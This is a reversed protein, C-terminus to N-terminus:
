AGSGRRWPGSKGGDKELLEVREIVIGKELAKLMDYVTLAAVTVGTLAEMEVGTKATTRAEVRIELCRRDVFRFEVKVASLPLAHCLPILEATRKAAQIGAVRAVGLVSGKEVAGDALRRLTASSMVVRAQALARRATEAKATVDVMRADGNPDVHTLAAKSRAV